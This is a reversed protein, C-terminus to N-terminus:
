HALSQTKTQQSSTCSVHNATSVVDSISQNEATCWYNVNVTTRSSRIIDETYSLSIQRSHTTEFDYTMVPSDQKWHATIVGRPWLGPISRSKESCPFSMSNDPFETCGWPSITVFLISQTHDFIQTFCNNVSYVSDNHGWPTSVRGLLHWSFYGNRHMCLSFIALFRGLHQWIALIETAIVEPFTYNHRTSFAPFSPSNKRRSQPWGTLTTTTTIV